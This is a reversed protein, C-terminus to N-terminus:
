NTRNFMKSIVRALPKENREKTKKLFHQILVEFLGCGSGCKETMSGNM